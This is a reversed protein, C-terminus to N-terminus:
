LCFVLLLSRNKDPAFFVCVRAELGPGFSLSLPASRPGALRRSLRIMPFFTISRKLNPRTPSERGSTNATRKLGPLQVTRHAHSCNRDPERHRPQRILRLIGRSSVQLSPRVPGADPRSDSHRHRHWHRGPLAAAAAVAV